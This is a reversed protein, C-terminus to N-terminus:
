KVEYEADIIEDEVYDEPKVGFDLRTINIVNHLQCSWILLRSYSDIAIDIPRTDIGADEGLLFVHSEVLTGNENSRKVTVKNGNSGAKRKSGNDIWYILREKTDYALSRIDRAGRLPLVLDLPSSSRAEEEGHTAADSVELDDVEEM